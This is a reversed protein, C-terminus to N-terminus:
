AAAEQPARTITIWVEEGSGLAEQIRAFLPEFAKRSETIQEGDVATGTLICGETDAAKNGQHIRVGIYGPVGNLLPLDRGFHQSYTVTIKYRGAPIATEGPIKWEVVPVGPIERVVDELTFCEFAGAESLEGITSNETSPRSRLELEM